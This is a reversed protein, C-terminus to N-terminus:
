MTVYIFAGIIFLLLLFIFNFFPTVRNFIILDVNIFWITMWDTLWLLQDISADCACWEHLVYKVFLQWFSEVGIADCMINCADIDVSNNLMGCLKACTDTVGIEKNFTNSFPSFLLTYSM